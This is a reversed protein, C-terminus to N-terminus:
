ILPLFCVAVFWQSTAVPLHATFAAIRRTNDAFKMGVADDLVQISISRDAAITIFRADREPIAAM